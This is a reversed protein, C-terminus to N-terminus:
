DGERCFYTSQAFGEGRWRIKVVGKTGPHLLEEDVLLDSPGEIDSFNYSLYNKGDRGVVRGNAKYTGDEANQGNVTNSITAKKETLSLVFREGRADGSGFCIKESAAHASPILTIALSLLVLIKM